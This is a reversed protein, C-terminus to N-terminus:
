YISPTEDLGIIYSLVYDRILVEIGFGIYIPVIEWRM